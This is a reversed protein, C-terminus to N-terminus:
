HVKDLSTPCQVMRTLFARLNAQSSNGYSILNELSRDIMELDLQKETFNQRIQTMMSMKGVYSHVGMASEMLAIFEDRTCQRDHAAVVAYLAASQLRATNDYNMQCALMELLMDEDMIPNAM